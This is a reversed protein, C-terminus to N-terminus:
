ILNLLESASQVTLIGRSELEELEMKSKFGFGYLAGIFDVGIDDAGILDFRSDGIMVVNNYTKTLEMAKRITDAKSMTEASDMGVIADLYSDLGFYHLITKAIEESKLTAVAVKSGSYKLEKLLLLIGSYVEAQYIAKERGYKRHFQAAKFADEESLAYLRRYMEKPPPGVFEQLREESIPTLNMETEAYRVSGFIGSSTNLLTGDLDFIVLDHKSM